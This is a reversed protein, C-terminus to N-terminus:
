KVKKDLEEVRKHIDGVSKELRALADPISSGSNREVANVTRNVGLNITALRGEIYNKFNDLQATVENHVQIRTQEEELKDKKKQWRIVTAVGGTAAGAIIFGEALITLIAAWHGWPDGQAMVVSQYM